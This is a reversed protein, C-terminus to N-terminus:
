PWLSVNSTMKYLFFRFDLLPSYSVWKCQQNAPDLTQDDLKQELVGEVVAVCRESYFPSCRLNGSHGQEPSSSSHLLFLLSHFCWSIVLSFLCCNRGEGVDKVGSTHWSGRLFITDTLLLSKEKRRSCDVRTGFVLGQCFVARDGEHTYIPILLERVKIMNSTRRVTKETCM